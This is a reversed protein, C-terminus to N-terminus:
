FDAKTAMPIPYDDNTSANKNNESCIIEEISAVGRRYHVVASWPQTFANPDEVFFHVEMRRGGDIMRYREVVHIADSHPTLFWDLPAREDLAVTDIVLTEGEYHGVSEGYWSKKPNASHPGDLYVRRVQHDRQYLITIQNPTQLFKVPERLRLAGPVGSPWCLSHAPLIEEQNVLQRYAKEKLAAAVWPKLLPDDPDGIFLGDVLSQKVYLPHVRVPGQGSPPPQFLMMPPDDRQWSGSFDPVNKPAPQAAAPGLGAIAAAVSLWALVSKPTAM